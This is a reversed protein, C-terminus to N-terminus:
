PLAIRVIVKGRRDIAVLRKMAPQPPVLVAFFRVRELASWKRMATKPAPSPTLDRATGDAFELRLHDVNTLAAGDLEQEDAPGIHLSTTWLVPDRRSLHADSFTTDAVNDAERLTFEAIVRDGNARARQSWRVGGDSQGRAVLMLGKPGDARTSSVLCSLSLATVVLLILARPFM